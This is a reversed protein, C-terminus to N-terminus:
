EEVGEALKRLEEIGKKMEERERIAEPTQRLAQQQAFTPEERETDIKKDLTVKPIIRNHEESLDLMWTFRNLYGDWRYTILYRGRRFLYRLHQHDASAWEKGSYREQYWSEITGSERKPFIMSEYYQDERDFGPMGHNLELDVTSIDVKIERPKCFKGFSIAHFFSHFITMQHSIVGSSRMFWKDLHFRYGCACVKTYGYNKMPDPDDAVVQVRGLAMYQEHNYVIGCGGCKWESM